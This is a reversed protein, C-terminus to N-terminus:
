RYVGRRMRSGCAAVVLNGGQDFLDPLAEIGLWEVVVANRDCRFGLSQRGSASMGMLLNKVPPTLVSEAVFPDTARVVFSGGDFDPDGTDVREVQTDELGPAFVDSLSAYLRGDIPVQAQATITTTPMHLIELGTAWQLALGNVQGELRHHSRLSLAKIENTYRLGRRAGYASWGRRDRELDRIHRRADLTLGYALVCGVSVASCVIVDM